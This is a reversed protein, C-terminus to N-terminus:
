FLSLQNTEPIGGLAGLKRLMEMHGKTLKPCSALLDEESIFGNSRNEALSLAAAEGLGPIALFPVRLGDEGEPLFKVPDSKYIDVPLFRFGRAYFEVVSEMTTYYDEDKASLDNQNRRVDCARIYARAADEGQIMIEASFNDKQCRRYFHASYFALPKHM